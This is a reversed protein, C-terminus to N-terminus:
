EHSQTKAPESETDSFRMGIGTIDEPEANAIGDTDIAYPPVGECRDAQEHVQEWFRARVQEPVDRHSMMQGIRAYLGALMRQSLLYGQYTPVRLTFTVGGEVERETVQVVEVVMSHVEENEPLVTGPTFPLHKSIARPLLNLMGNSIPLMKAINLDVPTHPQTTTM